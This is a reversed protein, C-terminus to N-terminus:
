QWEEPFNVPLEQKPKSRPGQWNAMRRQQRFTIQAEQYRAWEADAKLKALFEKEDMKLKKCQRYEEMTLTTKEPAPIEVSEQPHNRFWEEVCMKVFDTSEQGREQAKKKWLFYEEESLRM